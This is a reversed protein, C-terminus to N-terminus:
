ITFCKCKCKRQYHLSGGWGNGGSGASLRNGMDDFSCELQECAVPRGDSWYKRGATVQGLSEYTYVWRSNDANTM